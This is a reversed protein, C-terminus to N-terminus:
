REIVKPVKFFAGDTEPAQSLVEARDLSPVPLDVRLVGNGSGDGLESVQALPVVGSTDLENLEAVYDLIANLDRLMAPTEEPKLELHALEAVRKVDEVTVKSTMGRQEGDKTKDPKWKKVSMLSARLYLIADQMEATCANSWCRLGCDPYSARYAHGASADIWQFYRECYDYIDGATNLRLQGFRRRGRRLRRGFKRL